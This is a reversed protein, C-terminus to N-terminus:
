TTNDQNNDSEDDSEEDSENDSEDDSENSSPDGPDEPDKNPKKAAHVRNQRKLQQVQKDIAWKEKLLQQIEEEQEKQNTKLIEFSQCIGEQRIREEEQQRNHSRIEDMMQIRRIEKARGAVVQEEMTQIEEQTASVHPTRWPADNRIHDLIDKAPQYDPDAEEDDDQNTHEWMHSPHESGRTEDEMFESENESQQQTGQAQPLTLDETIDIGEQHQYGKPTSHRLYHEMTPQGTEKGPNSRATNTRPKRTRTRTAM